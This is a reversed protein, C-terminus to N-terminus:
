FKRIMAKVLGREGDFDQLAQAIIAGPRPDNNVMAYGPVDSAVLLDGSHVPGLMKIVEAGIVIPKGNTDAVAQILPDNAKGCKELQDNAWCLVDGEEFRDVREATLEEPTQLNAETLAGCSVSGRVMLGASSGCGICVNDWSHGTGGWPVLHLIRSGDQRLAIDPGLRLDLGAFSPNGGTDVGFKVSGTGGGFYLGKGSHWNLYINGSNAEGPMHIQANNDVGYINVVQNINHGQVNINGQAQANATLINAQMAYPVAALAERPTMEESNIQIGL